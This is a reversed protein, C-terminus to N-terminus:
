KDGSPNKRVRAYSLAKNSPRKILGLVILYYYIICFLGAIFFVLAEPRLSDNFFFEGTMWIGNATIWCCIACNHMFDSFRNFTRIAIIVAVTITPIIMIMGLWKFNLVWCTDKILWLLIHVNETKKINSM